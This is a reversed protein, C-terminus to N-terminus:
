GAHVRHLLARRRALVAPQVLLLWATFLLLAQRPDGFVLRLGRGLAELVGGVVGGLGGGGSSTGSPSAGVLSASASGSGPTGATGDTGATGSSGPGGATGAEGATGGGVDGGSGGAGASGEPLLLINYNASTAVGAFQFVQRAAGWPFNDNYRVMELGPVEATDDGALARDSFRRQPSKQVATLAGGPSGAQLEQDAAGTGVRFQVRGAAVVNLADTVQRADCEAACVVTDGISVGRIFTVHQSMPGEAPRGNAVSTAVSRVEAIRILGGIEIDSAVAYATSVIGRPERRIETWSASRGVSVAQGSLNGEARATVANTGDPVACQVSSTGLPPSGGDDPAATKPDEGASSSCAAPARTWRARSGVQGDLADKGGPVTGFINQVVANGSSSNLNADCRSPQELDLKTRGDVDAAVAVAATSGTDAETKAVRGVFLDRDTFSCATTLNDTFLYGPNAPGGGLGPMPFLPVVGKSMLIRAGYGSASASFSSETLGSQEPRDVTGTDPDDAPPADVLDPQRYITYGAEGLRMVLVRGTAADVLVRHLGDGALAADSRAQPVPFLRGEVVGLGYAPGQFYLRGAVPDIGYAVRPSDRQADPHAAVTGVFSMTATDFVWIAGQDTLNFVRGSGPDALASAANTPGTVFDETSTPSLLDVRPLRVFTSVEGTRVCHLYLAESSDLFLMTQTQTEGNPAPLVADCARVRRPGSVAKTALDVAYLFTNFVAAGVVGGAPQGYALLLRDGFRDYTMGGLGQATLPPALPFTKVAFSRLDVSVGQRGDVDAFFVRRGPDVAHLWDGGGFNGFSARRLPPLALTALVRFSDLDRVIVSTQRNYGFPYIQWIQRVESVLIASGSTEREMASGTTDDVPRVYDPGLLALTAADFRPLEGIPQFLPARADDAASAAALPTLAVAVVLALAAHRRSRFRGTTSGHTTM